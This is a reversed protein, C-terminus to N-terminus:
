RLVSAIFRRSTNAVLPSSQKPPIRLYSKQIVCRGPLALAKLVHNPPALPPAAWWLITPSTFAWLKLRARECLGVVVGEGESLVRGRGCACGALVGGRLESVETPPLGWLWLTTSSLTLRRTRACRREGLVVSFSFRTPCFRPPPPPLPTRCHSKPDLMGAEAEPVGGPRPFFVYGPRLVIYQKRQVVSCGKRQQGQRTETLGQLEDQAAGHCRLAPWRRDDNGLPGSFAAQDRCHPFHPVPPSKSVVARFCSRYHVANYPSFCWVETM